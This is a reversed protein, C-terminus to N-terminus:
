RRRRGADRETKVRSAYPTSFKVECEVGEAAEDPLADLHAALVERPLRNRRVSHPVLRVDFTLDQSQVDTPSQESM